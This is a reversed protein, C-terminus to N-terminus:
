GSPGFAPNSTGAGGLLHHWTGLRRKRRRHPEDANEAMQAEFSRIRELNVAAVTFGLLTTIKVLGFVRFFGRDLTVFGGKFTANVSEVAMRRNMSMRWASTGFPIRQALPLDAAPARFSGHCCHEVPEDFFVVPAAASRRMTDPFSRSRLFGACFPCKWRTVGDPDPQGHRAMRWRARQNFAKEFAKRYPIPATFPPLALDRLEGPLFISFLQGDMIIADQSFPRLGRQSPVLQFTQEVGAQALPYAATEPLCYSYGPDWIVERLDQGKDKAELLLPVISKARHSGAPVLSLNTIVNPVEPGFTTKDIYNTWRVEKTQVALHLEYGLYPGASHRGSWSRHGARADPDPTYQKRGDPGVALVKAMQRARPRGAKLFPYADAGDAAEGDLELVTVSGQFAGWTEVDTGDVAVSGSTCYRAPVAAQALANAFWSADHGDEGAELVGCLKHFLFVVRAYAQRPEWTTLGLSLRQGDTMANLLRAVDVLHGEHNRQLANVQFAVLLAELSLRRHRGVEADLQPSLAEVLGSRGIIQRALSLEEATTTRGGGLDLPRSM